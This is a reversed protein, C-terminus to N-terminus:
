DISLHFPMSASSLNNNFSLHSSSLRSRLFTFLKRMSFFILYLGPGGERFIFYLKVEGSFTLTIDPSRIIDLSALSKIPVNHM